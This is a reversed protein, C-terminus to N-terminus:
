REVLQRAISSLEIGAVLQLLVVLSAESDLHLENRRMGSCHCKM